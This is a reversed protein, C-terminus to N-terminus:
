WQIGLWKKFKALTFARFSYITVIYEYSSVKRIYSNVRPLFSQLVKNRESMQIHWSEPQESIGDTNFNSVIRNWKKYSCSFQITAMLFWKWDSVIKLDEDYLGIREFLTRKIFTCPHNISKTQMYGLDIEQVEPAYRIIEVNGDIMLNGSVIEDNFGEVLFDGVVGDDVLNDGSNLFLLYEGDVKNIGKNMANYIGKDPESCWYSIPNWGNRNLNDNLSIIYEKSGDTSGGDIIIWEFDRGIQNIVSETTKKLGDLNNFNITVISLKKM